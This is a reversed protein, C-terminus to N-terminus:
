LDLWDYSAIGSKDRFRSETNERHHFHRRVALAHTAANGRVDTKPRTSHERPERLAL